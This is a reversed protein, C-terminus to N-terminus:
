PLTWDKLWGLGASRSPAEPASMTLRPEVAAPADLSPTGSLEAYSPLDLAVCPMLRVSRLDLSDVAPAASEAGFFSMRLPLPAPGEAGTLSMTLAILLANM